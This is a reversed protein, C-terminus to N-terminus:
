PNVQVTKWETYFDKAVEGQERTGSSSAKTGGFPAHPDVGTTDGNIRVLGAEIRDIYALANPINSTYLATSLGFPTSNALEVAHDFHKATIIALVPGFLEEQAIPDSANVPGVITPPVFYGGVSGSAQHLTRNRSGELTAMLRSQSSQDIVPGLASNAETVPAVPLADFASKLESLFAEYANEVVIARSTATCKQGAFRIAGAAVLGAAKKMDADELVVAANKGGMECQCKRNARACAEQISTGTKVSGTFSVAKVGSHNVLSAGTSGDGPVVNFVGEPLGISTEALLMACLPSLESPKLVVTNGVAIAPAAKWLPIALPFNWPTVLGVVGLPSRLSYQLASGIQAPIVEGMPRVAEGAYYRLIAVCRGVEGMAEGIPKGVERAIAQALDESRAKVRDAWAYLHDGRAPGSLSKWSSFGKEASDVAQDVDQATGVTLVAVVEAPVSPNLSEVVSQGTSPTFAGSIFSNVQVPSSM